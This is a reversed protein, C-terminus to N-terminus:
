QGSARAGIVSVKADIPLQKGNTFHLTMTVDQGAQAGTIGFIMVHKGGREFVLKEGAKVPVEGAPAMSSIGNETITQHLMTREAGVVDVATLKTDDQGGYLVFYGAAPRGEVPSLVIEAEAVTLSGSQESTPSSCATVALLAAFAIPSRPFIM